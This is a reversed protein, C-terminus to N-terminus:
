RTGGSAEIRPSPKGRIIRWKSTRGSAINKIENWIAAFLTRAERDVALLIASYAARTGYGM